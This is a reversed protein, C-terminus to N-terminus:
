ARDLLVTGQHGVLDDRQLAHAMTGNHWKRGHRLLAVMSPTFETVSCVENM